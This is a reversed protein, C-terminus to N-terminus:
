IFLWGEGFGGSVKRQGVSRGPYRGGGGVTKPGTAFGKVGKLPYAARRLRRGALPSEEKKRVPDPLWAFSQM